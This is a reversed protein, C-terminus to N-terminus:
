EEEFREFPCGDCTRLDSDCMNCPMLWHGCGPCRGGTLPILVECDCYPCYEEEKEGMRSKEAIECLTVPRGSPYEKYIVTDM